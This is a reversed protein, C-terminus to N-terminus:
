ANKRGTIMAILLNERHTLSTVVVGLVHVAILGLLASALFEHVEQVWKAGWFPETTMLYGTLATGGLTALLAIIM